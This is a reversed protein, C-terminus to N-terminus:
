LMFGIKGLDSRRACARCLLTYSDTNVPSYIIRNPVFGEYSLLLILMLDINSKRRAVSPAWVRRGVYRTSKTWRLRQRRRRWHRGVIAWRGDLSITLDASQSDHLWSQDSWMTHQMDRIDREDINMAWVSKYVNKRMSACYRSFHKTWGARRAFYKEATKSVINESGILSVIHLM